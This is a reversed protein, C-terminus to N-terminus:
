VYMKLQRCIEVVQSFTNKIIPLIMKHYQESGTIKPIKQVYLLGDDRADIWGLQEILKHFDEEHRTHKLYKTMPVKGYCEAYCSSYSFEDHVEQKELFTLRRYTCLAMDMSLDDNIILMFEIRDNTDNGHEFFTSLIIPKEETYEDVRHSCLDYLSEVITDQITQLPLEYHLKVFGNLEKLFKNKTENSKSCITWIVKDVYFAGSKEYNNPDSPCVADAFSKVRMALAMDMSYPIGDIVSFVDRIHTDPKAISALGSGKLYDCALAVGIGELEKCDALLQVVDFPPKIASNIIEDAENRKNQPSAKLKTRLDDINSVGDLLAAGNIIISCLQETTECKEPLEKLLEKKKLAKAYKIDFNHTIASINKFVDNKRAWAPKHRPSLSSEILHAYLWKPGRIEDKAFEFNLNVMKGTEFDTKEVQLNNDKMWEKIFAWIKSDM